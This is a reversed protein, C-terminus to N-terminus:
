RGPRYLSSYWECGIYLPVSSRASLRFNWRLRQPINEEVTSACAAVRPRNRNILIAGISMTLRTVSAICKGAPLYFRPERLFTWSSGAGPRQLEVLDNHDYSPPSQSFNPRNQTRKGATRRETERADESHRQKVGLMAPYLWPSVVGSPSSLTVTQSTTYRLGSVCLILPAVALSPSSFSLSYSFRPSKHWQAQRRLSSQSVRLM